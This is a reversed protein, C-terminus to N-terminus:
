RSFTFSHKQNFDPMPIEKSTPVATQIWDIIKKVPTKTKFHLFDSSIAIAMVGSNCIMENQIHSLRMVLHESVLERAGDMDYTVSDSALMDSEPHNRTFETESFCFSVKESFDIFVKGNKTAYKVYM